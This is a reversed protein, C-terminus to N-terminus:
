NLYDDFAKVTAKILLLEKAREESQCVRERTLRLPWCIEEDVKRAKADAHFM